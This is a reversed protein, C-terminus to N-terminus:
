VEVSSLRVVSGGYNIAVMGTVFCVMRESSATGARGTNPSHMQPTSGSRRYRASSKAHDACAVILPFVTYTEPLMPISLSVPFSRPSM